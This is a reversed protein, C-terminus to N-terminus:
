VYPFITARLMWEGSGEDRDLAVIGGNQFKVVRRETQGTLLYSALKEMFPLHGVLMLDQDSSIESGLITPDDKAKIGERQSTGQGPNLYKEFTEATQKARLKPSHEIKDLRAGKNKAVRAVDEVEQLGQESLPEEPDQEKPVAKGHQVLYLTM